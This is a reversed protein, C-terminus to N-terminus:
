TNRSVRRQSVATAPQQVNHVRDELVVELGQAAAAQPERADGLYRESDSCPQQRQSSSIPIGRLRSEAPQEKPSAMPPADASANLELTWRVSNAEAPVHAQVAIREQVDIAPGTANLDAAVAVDIM